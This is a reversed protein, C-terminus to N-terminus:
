LATRILSLDRTRTWFPGGDHVILPVATAKEPIPDYAVPMSYSITAEKGTVKIEKVFSRVFTKKEALCSHSLLNRLDEVYCAVTNFDAPEVRRDSLLHELEWRTTHLQEQRQRLAQIRPAM